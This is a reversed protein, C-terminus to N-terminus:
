TVAIYNKKTITSSGASNKVTLKVTYRGTKTYTHTPSQENSTIKDGFNWEYTLPSTGTSDDIFKVTLPRPGTLASDSHFAATPKIPTTVTIMKTATSSRGTSDRVTLTVTYSGAKTYTHVPNQATSTKRDGFNWAYTLPLTGTSHDTFQVSLYNPTATFDALPAVPSASVTIAITAPSSDLQGDNVKFTFSDAGIFNAQPTYTLSSGSGTLSGHLPNDVVSYTLSDGDLDMGTLTIVKTTDEDTIVSQTDAVPADNVPIVTITVTAINSDLAGDNAKYTFTDVGNWNTSPTYVFSGDANLSLTGHAPDTVKIATIVTSDIDVDNTLVGAAAINMTVDEDTSYADDTAVPADNVTITVTATNSDLQGDNAKYTFSDTGSWETNPTYTFSGDTNLTLDGHQPGSVPVSTLPDSDPDNDNTLVGPALVNLQMGRKTSYNDDTTLPPHNVRGIYYKIGAPIWTTSSLSEQSVIHVRGASDIDVSSYVPSGIPYVVTEYSWGSAGRWGIWLDLNGDYGVIFPVDNRDLGFSPRYGYEVTEFTWGGSDKHGYKLSAPYNHSFAYMVNPHGSSDFELRPSVRSQPVTDIQVITWGTDTRTGYFVPHNDTYDGHVYIVAPHGDADLALDGEYSFGTRDDLTETFAYLGSFSLKAYKLPYGPTAGYGTYLIHIYGDSDIVASRIEVPVNGFVQGIDIDYWTSGDRYAHRITHPFSGASYFIHPNGSSDLAADQIRPHIYNSGITIKQWSSGQKYMYMPVSDLTTGTAQRTFFIRPNDAADLLIKPTNSNVGWHDYGQDGTNSEDLLESQWTMACVPMVIGMVLIIAIACAAPLRQTILLNSPKM